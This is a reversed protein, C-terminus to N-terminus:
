ESEGSILRGEHYIRGGFRNLNLEFNGNIYINGGSMYEGVWFGAYGNIIISGGQLNYGLSHVTNGNIILVGSKMNIGCWSEVNGNVTITGGEMNSGLDDGVDGNVIISKTNQYGLLVLNVALHNTYIIFDQDRCTNILASLFMGAKWSFRKDNQFEALAISFNGVDKSSYVIDKLLNIAKIYFIEHNNEYEVKVWADKLAKSIDGKKVDARRVTQRPEKKYRGFDAMTARVARNLLPQQASAMM